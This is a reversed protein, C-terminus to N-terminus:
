SAQAYDADLLFAAFEEGGFRAAVDGARLASTIVAGLEELTDNGALHGYTDNVEKFHDVDMMLVCFPRSDAAARAAERRLESFFSKSTLLGTLEDHVLLRHIQRQGDKTRRLTRVRSTSRLASM